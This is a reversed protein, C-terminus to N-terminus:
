KEKQGAEVVIVTRDAGPKAPDAGTIMITESYAEFTLNGDKDRYLPKDFHGLQWHIFTSGRDQICDGCPCWIGYSDVEVSTYPPRHTGAFLNPTKM